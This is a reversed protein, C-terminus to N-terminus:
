GRQFGVPDDRGLVQRQHDHRVRRRREVPPAEGLPRPARDGEPSRGSHRADHPLRRPRRDLRGPGARQARHHPHSAHASRGDAQPVRRRRGRRAAAPRPRRRRHGGKAASAVLVVKSRKGEGDAMPSSPLGCRREDPWASAIGASASLAQRDLRARRRRRARRGRHQHGDDGARDGPCEARACGRRVQRAGVSAMGGLASVLAPRNPLRSLPRTRQPAQLDTVAEEYRIDPEQLGGGHRLTSGVVKGAIACHFPRSRNKM